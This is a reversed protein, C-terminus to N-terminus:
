GDSSGPKGPIPEYDDDEPLFLAAVGAVRVIILPYGFRLEVASPFDEHLMRIEYLTPTHYFIPVLTRYNSSSLIM